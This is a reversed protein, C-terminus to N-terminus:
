MKHILAVILHVIIKRKLGSLKIVRNQLPTIGVRADGPLAIVVIHDTGGKGHERPNRNKMRFIQHVPFLDAMDKVASGLQLHVVAADAGANIRGLDYVIGEVVGKIHDGGLERPAKPVHDHFGLIGPFSPTVGDLQCKVSNIGGEKKIFIPFAIHNMVIGGVGSLLQIVAVPDDFYPIIIHLVVLDDGSGILNNHITANIKRLFRDPNLRRMDVLFVPLIVQHTGFSTGSSPVALHDEDTIIGPTGIGRSGTVRNQRLAMEGPLTGVFHIPGAM